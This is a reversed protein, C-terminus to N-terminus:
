ILELKPLKTLLDSKTRLIDEEKGYIGVVARGTATAHMIVKRVGIEIARKEIFTRWGKEYKGDCELPSLKMEKSLRDITNGLDRVLSEGQDIGDYRAEYEFRAM